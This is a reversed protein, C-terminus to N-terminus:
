EGRRFGALEIDRADLEAAAAGIRQVIRAAREVAGILEKAADGPLELGVSQRVGRGRPFPEAARREGIAHGLEAGADATDALLDLFLRIGVRAPGHELFLGSGDDPM